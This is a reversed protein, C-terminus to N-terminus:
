VIPEDRTIRKASSGQAVAHTAGLGCLPTDGFSVACANAGSLVYINMMEQNLGRMRLLGQHGTARGISVLVGDLEMESMGEQLHNKVASFVQDIIAGPRKITEIEFASKISRTEKIEESIDLVEWGGFRDRIRDFLSVPIVDLELGVKTGKIGYDRFLGPLAKIGKAKVCQVPSEAIARDYYKQVFFVPEGQQPLCLYGRQLTGSFYFIDVNQLSLPRDVGKKEMKRQLTMVRARIEEPPTLEFGKIEEVM